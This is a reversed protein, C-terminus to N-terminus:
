KKIYEQMTGTQTKAVEYWQRSMETFKAMFQPHWFPQKNIGSNRPRGAIENLGQMIGEARNDVRTEIEVHTRLFSQFDEKFHAYLREEGIERFELGHVCEHIIAYLKFDLPIRGSQLFQPNLFIGEKTAFGAAGSAAPNTFETVTFKLETADTFNRFAAVLAPSAAENNTIFEPFTM